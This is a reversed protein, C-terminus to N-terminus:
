LATALVDVPTEAVEKYLKDIFIHEAHPLEQILQNRLKNGSEDEDVLIYVSKNDLDYEIILQDLQEVGLTGNTCLIPVYEDLVKKVQKKDSIGEVIIITDSGGNDIM